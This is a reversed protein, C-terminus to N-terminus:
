KREKEVFMFYTDKDFDGDFYVTYDKNYFKLKNEDETYIVNDEDMEFWDNEQVVSLAEIFSDSDELDVTYRNRKDLEDKNIEFFDFFQEM